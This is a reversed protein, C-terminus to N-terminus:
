YVEGGTGTPGPGDARRGVEGEGPEDGTPNSHASGGGGESTAGTSGGPPAGGKVAGGGGHGVAGTGAGGPTTKDNEDGM